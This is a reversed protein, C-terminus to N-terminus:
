DESPSLQLDVPEAGEELITEFPTHLPIDPADELLRDVVPPQIGLNVDPNSELTRKVIQLVPITEEPPPFHKLDAEGPAFLSIDTEVAALMFAIGDPDGESALYAARSALEVAAQGPPLSSRVFHVDNVVRPKGVTRILHLAKSEERRQRFGEIIGM